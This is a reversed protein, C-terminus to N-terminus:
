AGFTAPRCSNAVGCAVAGFRPRAPSGQPPARATMLRPRRRGVRGRLRCMLHRGRGEHSHTVPHRKGLSACTRSFTPDGGSDAGAREGVQFCIGERSDDERQTLPFQQDRHGPRWRGTTRMASRERGREREGEGERGRERGRGGWGQDRPSGVVRIPRHPGAVM